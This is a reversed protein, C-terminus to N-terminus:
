HFDRSPFLVRAFRAPPGPASPRRAACCKRQGRTPAPATHGRRGPRPRCVEGPLRGDLLLSMDELKETILHTVIGQRQLEGTVRMLRAALVIRRHAEFVAPWVVVNASGTEDELTAFIVGSASGPRQRVLVLGAVSVKAGHAAEVLGAAPMVPGLADRVLRVPHDKLSLRISSYDQVVEEGLTLAPLLVDPEPGHEAEQAHGFLATSARAHGRGPGQGALEQRDLDM